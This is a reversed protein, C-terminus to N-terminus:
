QVLEILLKQYDGSTEDKIQRELSIGHIKLFEHKIEVLDMECRTIIIRTLTEEDTGMGKMAQGLREAYYVTPSQMCKVIALLGDRVDGSLEKSITEEITKGAMKEYNEFVLKLQPFSQNTLVRIFVSEDNGWDTVGAEMLEQVDKKAQEPDIDTSESRKGESEKIILKQFAKATEKSLDKQLYRDYLKYYAENIDKMEKNTASCIIDILTNEKTGFGAMAEHLQGALYETTPTMLGVVAKCYDGSLEKKLEKILNKDFSSKFAEAIKQRQENTRKALIETIVKENTGFGKMAKHLAAADAKADFPSHEKVTPTGHKNETAM